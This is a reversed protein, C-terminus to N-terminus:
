ATTAARRRDVSFYDSFAPHWGRPAYDGTITDVEYDGHREGRAISMMADIFADIDAASNYLGLSARAAGPNRHEIISQEFSPLQQSPVGLLHIM